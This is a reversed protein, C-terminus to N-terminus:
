LRPYQKKHGFYSSVKLNTIKAHIHWWIHNSVLCAHLATEFVCENVKQISLTEMKSPFESTFIGGEGRGANVCIKYLKALLQDPVHM